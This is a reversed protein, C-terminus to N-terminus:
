KKNDKKKKDEDTCFFGTYIAFSAGIFGFIVAFTLVSNM